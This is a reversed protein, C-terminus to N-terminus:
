QTIDESFVGALLNNIRYFRQALALATKGSLDFLQQITRTM